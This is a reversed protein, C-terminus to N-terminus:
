SLISRLYTRYVDLHQTRIAQGKFTALSYAIAILLVLAMFRPQSVKSGELNYGGSKCDKFLQEIGWRARYVMLATKLDPLNTLIYWPEKPGKGRYKRKWYAALNFPGLSDHKNCWVDQYFRAM